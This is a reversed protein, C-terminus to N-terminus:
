PLTTPIVIPHRTPIIVIGATSKKQLLYVFKNQLTSVVASEVM